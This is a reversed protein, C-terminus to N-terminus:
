ESKSATENGKDDRRNLSKSMVRAIVIAAVLLAAVSLVLLMEGSLDQYSAEGKLVAALDTASAGISAQLIIIPLCGLWTGIVYDKTRAPTVGFAYNLVNYPFIMVLRALM